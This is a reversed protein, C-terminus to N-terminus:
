NCRASLPNVVTPVDALKAGHFFRLFFWEIARQTVPANIAVKFFIQSLALGFSAARPPFANALLREALLHPANSAAFLFVSDGSSL